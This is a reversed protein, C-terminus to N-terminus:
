SEYDPHERIKKIAELVITTIKSRFGDNSLKNKLIAHGMDSTSYLADLKNLSYAVVEDRHPLVDKYEENENVIRDITEQVFDEMYNRM